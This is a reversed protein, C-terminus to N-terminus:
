ASIDFFIIIAGLSKQLTILKEHISILFKKRNTKNSQRLKHKLWDSDSNSLKDISTVDQRSKMLNHLYVLVNIFDHFNCRQPKERNLKTSTEYM